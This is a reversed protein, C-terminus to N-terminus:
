PATTATSATTVSETGDSSVSGTDDSSTVDHWGWEGSPELYRVRPPISAIYTGGEGVPKLCIIGQQHCLEETGPQWTKGTVVPVLKLDLCRAKVEEPNSTVDKDRAIKWLYELRGLIGKVEDEEDKFGTIVKLDVNSKTELVFLYKSNIVFGDVELLTTLGTGTVTTFKVGRADNLPQLRHFTSLVDRDQAFANCHQREAGTSINYFAASHNSIEDFAAALSFLELTADPHELMRAVADKWSTVTRLVKKGKKLRVHSLGRTLENFEAESHVDRPVPYFKRGDKVLENIVILAAFHSCNLTVSQISTLIFLPTVVFCHRCMLLALCCNYERAAAIADKVVISAGDGLGVETLKKRPPLAANDITVSGDQNETAKHLTLTSLRETLGLKKVVEELLDSVDEACSTFKILSADGHKKVWLKLPASPTGAGAATAEPLAASTATGVASSMRALGALHPLLAGSLRVSSVLSNSGAFALTSIIVHVAGGRSGLQLAPAHLAARAATTLPRSLMTARNSLAKCACWVSAL